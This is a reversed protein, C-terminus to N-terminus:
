AHAVARRPILSTVILSAPVLLVAAILWVPAELSAAADPTLVAAPVLLPHLAWAAALAIAALAQPLDNLRWRWLLPQAGPLCMGVAAVALTLIALLDLGSVGAAGLEGRWLWVALPLLVALSSIGARLADAWGPAARNSLGSALREAGDLWASAWSGFSRHRRSLAEVSAEGLVCWWGIMPAFAGLASRGLALWSRASVAQGALGLALILCSTQLASVLGGAAASLTVPGGIGVGPGPSLSPLVFLIGSGPQNNPVLLTYSFWILSTVLTFGLATTLSARRPGGVIVSTILIVLLVAALLVLNTSTLAISILTVLLALWVLPHGSGM